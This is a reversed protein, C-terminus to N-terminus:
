RKYFSTLLGLYVLIANKFKSRQIVVYIVMLQPYIDNKSRGSSSAVAHLASDTEKIAEAFAKAIMGTGAIGWKTMTM